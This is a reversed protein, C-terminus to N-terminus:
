PGGGGSVQPPGVTTDVGTGVGSGPKEVAGNGNLDVGGDDELTPLLQDFRDKTVQKLIDNWTHHEDSKTKINWGFSHGDDYHGTDLSPDPEGRQEFELENDSNAVGTFLDNLVKRTHRGGGAGTQTDAWLVTVGDNEASQEIYGDPRPYGPPNLSLLYAVATLGGTKVEEVIPKDEAARAFPNWATRAKAPAKNVLVMVLGQTTSHKRKLTRRVYLIRVSSPLKRAGPFRVRLTRGLRHGGRVPTKVTVVEVAAHGPRPVLVGVKLTRAQAPAGAALMSAVALLAAVGAPRAIRRRKRTGSM